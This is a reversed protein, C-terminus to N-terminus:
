FTCGYLVEAGFGFPGENPERLASLVWAPLSYFCNHGFIQQWEDWGASGWMSMADAVYHGLEHALLCELDLGAIGFSACPIIINNSSLFGQYCAVADSRECPNGPTLTIAPGRGNETLISSANQGTGSFLSFTGSTARSLINGMAQRIQNANGACAQPRLDYLGLPDILNVPNNRVYTYLNTAAASPGIPDPTLYRGTLPDYYRHYNYHLGSETDHYQGPFRFNNSVRSLSHVEAKGFPRYAGHWLVRLRWDVLMIPIGIHDYVYFYVEGSAVDVMALRHSRGPRARYLYEKTFIGNLHSEGIIDANRSIGYHFVTTVGNTKKIVRQGLGNYVYEGLVIGDEEARIM